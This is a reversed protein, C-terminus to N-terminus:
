LSQKYPMPNVPAAYGNYANNSAGINYMFNRGVNILNQPLISGGKYSKSKKGGAFPFNAGTSVMQRSTDNVYNNLSLHNNDGGVGNVGPWTNANATWASGVLGNAYSSGGRITQSPNLWSLQPSNNQITSPYANSNIPDNLHNGGKPIYALHPNPPPSINNTGTYALSLNLADGGKLGRTGGFIKSSHHCSCACNPTHKKNLHCKCQCNHSSLKGKAFFSLKSKSKKACGKMFYTHTNKNKRSKNKRSKNIRRRSPM